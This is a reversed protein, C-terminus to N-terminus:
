AESLVGCYDKFVRALRNVLEIVNSPSCNWKTTVCFLLGNKKVYLYNVGDINICPPPDGREWFKVKRFFNDTAGPVADGRYDKSIITDGRPSLIF